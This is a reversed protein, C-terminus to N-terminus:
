RKRAIPDSSMPASPVSPVISIRRSGVASLRRLGSADGASEARLWARVKRALLVADHEHDSVGRPRRKDVDPGQKMNAPLLYVPIARGWLLGVLAGAVHSLPMTIRQRRGYWGVQEVAALRPKHEDVYEAVRPLIWELYTGIFKYGRGPFLLLETDLVKGSDRDLIALGTHRLGPDVGLLKM